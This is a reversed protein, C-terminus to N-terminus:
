LSRSISTRVLVDSKPSILCQRERVKQLAKVSGYIRKKTVCITAAFVKHSVEGAENTGYVNSVTPGQPVLCM